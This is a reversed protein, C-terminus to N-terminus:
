RDALCRNDLDKPSFYIVILSARCLRYWFLKDQAFVFFSLDRLSFFPPRTKWGAM